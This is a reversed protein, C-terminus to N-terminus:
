ATNQDIRCPNVTPWSYINDRYDKGAVSSLSSRAPGIQMVELEQWILMTARYQERVSNYQTEEQETGLSAQLQAVDSHLKQIDHQFKSLTPVVVYPGVDKLVDEVSWLHNSHSISLLNDDKGNGDM